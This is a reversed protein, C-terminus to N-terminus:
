HTNSEAAIALPAVVFTLCLATILSKMTFLREKSILSPKRPRSGMEINGAGVRVCLRWLFIRDWQIQKQREITDESNNRSPQELKGADGPSYGTRM